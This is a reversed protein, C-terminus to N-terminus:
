TSGVNKDHFAEYPTRYGLVKMPRHNHRQQVEKVQQKSINEFDTKKPFTRRLFGNRNEVTGRESSCYPHCFFIKTKLTSEVLPHSSNEPGNDLTISHRKHKPLNKLGEIMAAAGASGTCNHIKRVIMYRSKRDVLNFVAAKSKRSVITDGEWDGLRQRDNIIDPRLEISRKPAAPQLCRRKRKSARSRYRKPKAKLLYPILDRRDNYIWQYISEHNTKLGTDDLSLRGAISEPSWGQELKSEVYDKIEKNKLRTRKRSAHRREEARWHMERALELSSLGTLYPSYPISRIFRSVVTHHRSLKRGIERFGYGRRHMEIMHKRELLTLRKRLLNNEKEKKM